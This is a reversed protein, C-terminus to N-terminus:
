ADPKGGKFALMYLMGGCGKAREPIQIRFTFDDGDKCYIGCVGSYIDNCDIFCLGRIGGTTGSANINNFQVSVSADATLFEDVCLEAVAVGWNGIQYEYVSVVYIIADSSDVTAGVSEHAGEFPIKGDVYSKNAACFPSDPTAIGDLICSGETAKISDGTILFETGSNRFLTRKFCTSHEFLLAAASGDTTPNSPHSSRMNASPYIRGYEGIHGSFGKKLVVTGIMTGGSAPLWPGDAADTHIHGSEAAGVDAATHTHGAIAALLQEQSVGSDIREGKYYIAM